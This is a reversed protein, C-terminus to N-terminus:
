KKTKEKEIHEAMKKELAEDTPEDIMGKICAAKLFLNRGGRCITNNSTDSHCLHNTGNIVYEQIEHIRKLVLPKKGEFPCTHCATKRVKVGKKLKREM